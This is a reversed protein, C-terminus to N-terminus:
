LQPRNRAKSLTVALAGTGVGILLFSVLAAALRLITFAILGERTAVLQQLQQVQQDPYWSALQQISEIISAQYAAPSLFFIGILFIAFFAFSLFGMLTGLQAGQGGRLPAPHTRRYIYISLILSGPLLIFFGLPPVLVTLIGTFAAMPAATRIFSKWQIGSRGVLNAPVGSVMAIQDATLEVQSLAPNESSPESLPEPQPVRIQPAGCASCFAVQEEISQKCRYCDRQM